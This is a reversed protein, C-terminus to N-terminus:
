LGWYAKARSKMKEVKLPYSTVVRSTGKDVVIRVSKEGKTGM